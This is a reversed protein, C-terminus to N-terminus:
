THKANEAQPNYTSAQQNRSQERAQATLAEEYQELNAHIVDNRAVFAPSEEAMAFPATLFLSVILASAIGISKFM